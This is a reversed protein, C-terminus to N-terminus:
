RFRLHEGRVLRAFPLATGAQLAARILGKNPVKQVYADPVDAGQDLELAPPSQQFTVTATPTAIKRLGLLRMADALRTKLADAQARRRCARDRYNLAFRECAEAEEYLSRHLAVFSEAKQEITVALADLAAAGDEDIEGDADDIRQLVARMAEVIEYLSTPKVVTTSGWPAPEPGQPEYRPADHDIDEDLM